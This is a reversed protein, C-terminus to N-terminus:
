GPWRLVIVEERLQERTATSLRTRFLDIGVLEYGLSKAIDALLEGTRIMVRLYSAQDGVVYALHAGPRLVTRLDALHRAMGGFYLKTVRAYLREFGSSKGLEIRRNEIKDAIAQIERHATIWRDDDDGKYVSRTNSRVLTQKLARLDEKTKIFGLLVSELRTTRTYDKENPYPPSTIVADISAPELLHTLSRADAHIVEAPTNVLSSTVSLDTAMAKVEELWLKLVPADLRIVGVGVEPGFRLNSASYLAMKAFALKEHCQFRNESLRQLHDLLVLAKHLPLPSISDKLLLKEKESSLSRLISTDTDLIRLFPEDFIGLSKLDESADSFVQLAHELLAGPDISWDTKVRSAFYAMPNAEIGISSIGRKKAEVLTTGTGCFPDLIRHEHNLKFRQIYDSVLHPPFSLVFRYWDHVARDEQSLKNMTGNSRTRQIAEDLQKPLDTEFFSAQKMTIEIM